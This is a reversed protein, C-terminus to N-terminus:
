VMAKNHVTSPCTQGYMDINAPDSHWRGQVSRSGHDCQVQNASLASSWNGGGAAVTFPIGTQAVWTASGSWGGVLYDLMGGQHMYKRGKGFPLEYLGNLTVRHRVDFNDNTFEDKFPILNINRYGLGGGNGPNQLTTKPM